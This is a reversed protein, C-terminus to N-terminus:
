KVSDGTYVVVVDHVSELSKCVIAPPEHYKFSDRNCSWIIKLASREMLRKGNPFGVFSVYAANKIFCPVLPSALVREVM